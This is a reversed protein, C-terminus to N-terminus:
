ASSNPRASRCAHVWEPSMSGLSAPRRQVLKVVLFATLALGFVLVIM